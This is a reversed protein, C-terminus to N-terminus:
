LAITQEKAVPLLMEGMFSAITVRAHSPRKCNCLLMEGM